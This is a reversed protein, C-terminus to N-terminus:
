NGKLLLYKDVNKEKFYITLNGNTDGEYKYANKWANVFATGLIDEGAVPNGQNTSFANTKGNTEWKGSLTTRVARGTYEGTVVGNVEVASIFQIVMNGEKAWNDMANERITSSVGVFYDEICVRGDADFINTLKWTKGTFIDIVDDSQDCASLMPLALLLLLIYKLKM